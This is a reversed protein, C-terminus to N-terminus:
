APRRGGNFHRAAGAAMRGTCWRAYSAAFLHGLWRAPARAPLAYDIFVRLGTGEGQPSLEFGLRYPGIVLLKADITQWAKRRPPDREMVVEDLALTIGCVKGAMRVHSGVARGGAADTEITMKSGMMMASPEEMHASLKRFDDLYEFAAALTADLHTVSEGHLPLAAAASLDPEM